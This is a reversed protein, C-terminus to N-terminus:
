AEAAMAMMAKAKGADASAGGVLVGDIEPRALFGGVNSPDVSGGYLVRVSATGEGVLVELERRILRHVAAAEEPECPVGTGIAWRPEYAVIVPRESTPHLGDLAARLQSRVVEERRDADKEEETEGVCVIPTMGHALVAAAKRAVAEDTEGMARRESHGVIVYRVGLASLAAPSVEGTHAGADEWYVDQAGLAVETGALAAAVRVLATFSPAAVAEAGTERAAEGYARALAVSAEDTLYLKWNGAFLKPM